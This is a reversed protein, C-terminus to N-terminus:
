KLMSRPYEGYERVISNLDMALFLPITISSRKAFKLLPLMVTFAKLDNQVRQYFETHEGGQNVAFNVIGQLAELDLYDVEM